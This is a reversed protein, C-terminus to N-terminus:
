LKAPVPFDPAAFKPATVTVLSPLNETAFYIDGLFLFFPRHRNARIAAVAEDTYWDTIYGGPEFWEGGNYSAAWRM